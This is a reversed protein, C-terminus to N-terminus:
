APINKKLLRRAKAGIWLLSASGLGIPVVIHGGSLALVTALLVALALVCGTITLILAQLRLTREDNDLARDIVSVLTTPHKSM